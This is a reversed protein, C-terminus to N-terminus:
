GARPPSAPLTAASAAALRRFRRARGARGTRGHEAGAPGVAGGAPEPAATDAPPPRCDAGTAVERVAAKPRDQRQPGPLAVPLGQEGPRRM